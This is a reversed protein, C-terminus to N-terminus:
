RSPRTAARACSRTSCRSSTSRLHVRLRLRAPHILRHRRPTRRRRRPVRRPANTGLIPARRRRARARPARSEARPARGAGDPASRSARREALLRARTARDRARRARERGGHVGRRVLPSPRVRVRPPTGDRVVGVRRRARRGLRHRKEGLLNEEKRERRSASARGRRRCRRTWGPGRRRRAPVGGPIARVGARRSRPGRDVRAGDVVALRREGPARRRLRRGPESVELVDGPRGRSARRREPARRVGRVADGRRVARLSRGRGRVSRSPRVPAFFFFFFFFGFGSGRSNEARRRTKPPPKTGTTTGERAGRRLAAPRRERRARAGLAALLSTRAASTEAASALGRDARQGWPEKAAVGGESERTWRSGQPGGEREEAGAGDGERQEGLPKNGEGGLPEGGGESSDRM